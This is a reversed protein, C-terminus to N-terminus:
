SKTFQQSLIDRITKPKVPAATTRWDFDIRDMIASCRQCLYLSQDWDQAIGRRAAIEPQCLLRGEAIVHWQMTSNKSQGVIM